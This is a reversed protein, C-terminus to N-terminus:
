LSPGVLRQFTTTAQAAFKGWMAVQRAAYCARGAFNQSQVRREEWVKAQHRFFQVTWGMEHPILTLEESWRALRARSRFWHVRYVKVNQTLICSLYFLTTASMCEQMWLDNEMDGQADLKWFWSLNENRHRVVAPDIVSTRAQLHEKRLVQYRSLLEPSAGLAVMAERARSYIRAQQRVSAEAANVEGWARTKTKQSNAQRVSGRFLGAKYSLKIRIAHLADNAQGQRLLLEQKAQEASRGTAMASPLPLRLREPDAAGDSELGGADEGNLDDWEEDDALQEGLLEEEGQLFEASRRTWATIRRQLRERRENLEVREPM